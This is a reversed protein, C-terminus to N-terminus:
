PRTRPHNSYLPCTCSLDKRYGAEISQMFNLFKPVPMKLRELLGGKVVLEHSFVLLPNNRTATDFEFIAFNYENMKSLCATVQPTHLQLIDIPTHDLM